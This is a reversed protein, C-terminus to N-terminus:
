ILMLRVINIQFIRQSLILKLEGGKLSAIRFEPRLVKDHHFDALFRVNIMKNAFHLAPAVSSSLGAVPHPGCM